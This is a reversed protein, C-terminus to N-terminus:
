KAPHRRPEGVNKCMDLNGEKKLSFLIRCYNYVTIYCM